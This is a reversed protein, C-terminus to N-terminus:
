VIVYNKFPKDCVFGAARAIAVLASRMASDGCGSISCPEQKTDEHESDYPSGTLEIGASCMAEQLAASAKHYGWGGASGHGATHVGKGHVWLSCYVTSATRSRGMYFRAIIPQCLDGNADPAILTMTSITEKTDAYNKGNMAQTNIRAKM